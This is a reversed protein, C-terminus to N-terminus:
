QLGLYLIYLNLHQKTNLHLVPVYLVSAAKVYATMEQVKHLCAGM